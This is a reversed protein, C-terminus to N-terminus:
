HLHGRDLLHGLEYVAVRFLGDRDQAGPQVFARLPMDIAIVPRPLFPTVSMARSLPASFAAIMRNASPSSCMTSHSASSSSSILSIEWAMDVRPVTDDWTTSSRITSNTEPMDEAPAIM